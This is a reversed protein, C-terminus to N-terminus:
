RSSKNSVKPSCNNQYKLRMAVIYNVGGDVAESLGNGLALPGRFYGAFPNANCMGRVFSNAFAADYAANRGSLPLMEKGTGDIGVLISMNKSQADTQRYVGAILWLINYREAL